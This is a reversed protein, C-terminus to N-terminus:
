EKGTAAKLALSVSEPNHKSVLYIIPPVKDPNLSLTNIYGIVSLTVVNVALSIYLITKLKIKKM